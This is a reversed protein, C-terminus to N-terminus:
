SQGIEQWKLEGNEKITRNIDVKIQLILEKQSEFKIEDRLFGLFFIRIKKDYLNGEYDLIYTEAHLIRAEFTPCTGVNTLASYFRGDIEACTRYVGRKLAARNTEIDMNATPFGLGTGKGNGHSVSATIFYPYGLFERAEEVMGKSLLEKIKTTSIKEGNIKHEAEIECIAGAKILESKLLETNGVAGKGFRFDFGAIAARCHLDRLLTSHIFDDAEVSSIKSFDAVVAAEVGEKELLDLKEETSYISKGKFGGDSSFTFVTFTLRQKESIERATKLLRRHAAHVGDFFGLAVASNEIPIEQGFSYEYIKM